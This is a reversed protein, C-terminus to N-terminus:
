QPMPMQPSTTRTANDPEKTTIRKIVMSTLTDLFENELQAPMTEFTYIVKASIDATGSCPNGSASYIYIEAGGGSNGRISYYCYDDGGPKVRRLHDYETYKLPQKPQPSSIDSRVFNVFGDRSNRITEAYIIDQIIGVGDTVNVQINPNVLRYSSETNLVRQCTDQAAVNIMLMIEPVSVLDEGGDPVARNLAHDAAQERTLSLAM